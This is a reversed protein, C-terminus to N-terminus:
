KLIMSLSCTVTQKVFLFGHEM